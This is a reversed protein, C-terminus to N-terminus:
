TLSSTFTYKLELKMVSTPSIAKNEAKFDRLVQQKSLRQSIITIPVFRWGTVIQIPM